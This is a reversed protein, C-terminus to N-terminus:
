ITPSLVDGVTATKSLQKLVKRAQEMKSEFPTLKVMKHEQMVITIPEGNAAEQLFMMLNEKLEAVGITKM